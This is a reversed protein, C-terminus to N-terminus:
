NKIIKVFGRKGKQILVEKDAVAIEAERDAIIKNDVKVGGGDILRGAESKSPALGAAVLIDVVRHNGAKIKLVPIDAPVEKNQVTAEFGRQAKVAEEEGRVAKVIEFAMMKKYDMPNAGKKMESQIEKIAELPVDTLLELGMTIKDDSYSMAKGYMDESTDNLNIGNGKTKSMTRGDPADMMKLTMVFKEKDLYARVINRGTLMNFTQDAGGIEMDVNMAVGDYGQLLPYIFEHLGIPDGKELRREFMDRELMQQVTMQSMLKIIEDLKLKSLWEYNRKFQVPNDGGFDILQAAQEQWGALNEEIEKETLMKRGADKDPDGVRATFDGVLFIVEHGLQQLIRMARIGMAHGVHLFKGTPDFGQYIRLREGSMLKERFADASPYIAEVGRTLFKEILEKDVIVKSM